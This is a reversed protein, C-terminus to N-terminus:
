ERKYIGSELSLVENKFYELVKLIKPKTTKGMLVNLGLKPPGFEKFKSLSAEFSAIGAQTQDTANIKKFGLENLIADMEHSKFLFSHESASAWPMPYEIDRDQNMFIDYYLFYGNPRLVRHIESYFKNKDPINMQAHQTWVVDFVQDEFPLKVADGVVFTTKQSLNVLKSLERATRIFEHSLDLGTVDCNFEDALMRCPGGLGCGVDLVKQGNLNLVQALEKSVVSGRVHFEDVGAIDSRKVENLKINQDLLRSVIDEFLGERFYHNEIIQNLNKM